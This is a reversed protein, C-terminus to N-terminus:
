RRAKQKETNSESKHRRSGASMVPVQDASGVINNKDMVKSETPLQNKKPVQQAIRSNRAIGNMM